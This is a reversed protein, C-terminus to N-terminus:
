SGTARITLTGVFQFGATTTGPLLSWTAQVICQITTGLIDGAVNVPTANAIASNVSDRVTTSVPATVATFERQSASVSSRLKNSFAAMVEGRERRPVEDFSQVELDISAVILGAAM